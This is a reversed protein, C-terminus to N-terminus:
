LGCGYGYGYNNYSAYPSCTIYAPKACPRIESILQQTQASNIAATELTQIRDRLAQKENANMYDLIKQVGANQSELIDRTNLNNATIVDCFGKSMEYKVSDVNRQTECCCNKIASDIGYFGDKLSNNVAYFGDCLGNQIARIGNDLQNFQFGNNVANRTASGEFSAAAAADNVGGNNYGNNGWGFLAFLIIIWMFYGGDMFGEDRRNGLALADGVSLGTGEM